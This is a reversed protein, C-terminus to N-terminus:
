AAEQDVRRLVKRVVLFALAGLALGELGGATIDLPTHVRLVTRSFCVLVAWPVVLCALRLRWGTLTALALALFFTAFSMANLSHGSPFSYGVEKIWHRCVVEGVPVEEFCEAKPKSRCKLAGCSPPEPLRTWITNRYNIVMLSGTLM